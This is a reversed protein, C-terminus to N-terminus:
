FFFKFFKFFRKIKAQVFNDTILKFERSITKINVNINDRVNRVGLYINLTM